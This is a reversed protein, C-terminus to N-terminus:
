FAGNREETGVWCQRSKEAHYYASHDSTFCSLFFCFIIFFCPLVFASVLCCWQERRHWGFVAQKLWKEADCASFFLRTEREEALCASGM